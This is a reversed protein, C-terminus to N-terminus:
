IEMQHNAGRTASYWQWSPTQQPDKIKPTTWEWRDLPPCNLIVHRGVRVIHLASPCTTTPAPSLRFTFSRLCFLHIWQKKKLLQASSIQFPFQPIRWAFPGWELSLFFVDFIDCYNSLEQLYNNNVSEKEFCDVMAFESAKFFCLGQVTQLMLLKLKRGDVKRDMVEKWLPQYHFQLNSTASCFGWLIDCNFKPLRFFSM